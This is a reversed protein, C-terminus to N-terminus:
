RKLIALKLTRKRWNDGQRIRIRLFYVGNSLRSGQSNIAEFSERFDVESLGQWNNVRKGSSDHLSIYVEDPKSTASCNLNIQDMNMIPNPAVFCREFGFPAVVNILMNSRQVNGVNDSASVEAVWNGLSHKIFGRYNNNGDPQLIHRKNELEIWVQSVGSLDDQSRLEISQGEISLDEELNFDLEPPNLDQMLFVKSMNTTQITYKLSGQPNCNLDQNLLHNFGDNWSMFIAKDCNRGVLISGSQEIWLNEDGFFHLLDSVTLRKSPPYSPPLNKLEVFKRPTAVIFNEENLNELVKYDINSISGDLRQVSGKYSNKNPLVHLVVNQTSSFGRFDEATFELAVDGIFQRNVNFSGSFGNAYDKGEIMTQRLPVLSLEEFSRFGESIFVQPTPKEPEYLLIDDLGQYDIGKFVFGFSAPDVPNQFVKVQVDPGNDIKFVARSSGFDNGARDKFGELFLTATGNVQRTPMQFHFDFINTELLHEPFSRAHQISEMVIMSLTLRNM